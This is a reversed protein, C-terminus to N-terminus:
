FSFFVFFFLLSLTDEADGCQRTFATLSTADNSFPAIVTRALEVDCLNLAM